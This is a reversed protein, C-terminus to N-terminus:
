PANRLQERLYRAAIETFQDEPFSQPSSDDLGYDHLTVMDPLDYAGEAFIKDHMETDLDSAHEIILGAQLYNLPQSDFGGKRILRQVNNYAAKAAEQPTDSSTKAYEDYLNQIVKPIPSGAEIGELGKMYYANYGRRQGFLNRQLRQEIEIGGAERLALSSRGRLTKTIHLSGTNANINDIQFIHLIEHGAGSIVGIPPNPRTLSRYFNQPIKLVGNKGEVEMSESSSEDIVVQWKEDDARGDRGPVYTNAPSESLKGFERLVNECFLQMGKADLKIHSLKEVEEDTFMPAEAQLYVENAKVQENEVLAKLSDTVATLQGSSEESTAGNRIRDLGILYRRRGEESLHAAHSITPWALELAQKTETDGTTEAQKWLLLADPYLAALSGNIVKLYIDAIDLMPEAAETSPQKKIDRRVDLLFARYQGFDGLKTTLQTTSDFVKTKHLEPVPEGAVLAHATVTRAWTLSKAGLKRLLTKDVDFAQEQLKRFRDEASPSEDITIGLDRLYVEADEQALFDVCIGRAHSMYSPSESIQQLNKELGANLEGEDSHYVGEFLDSEFRLVEERIEPSLLKEPPRSLVNLAQEVMEGSRPSFISQEPIQYQEAM